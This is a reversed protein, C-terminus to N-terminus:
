HKAVSKHKRAKAHCDTPEARRRKTTHQCAQDILDARNIRERQSADGKQEQVDVTQSEIRVLIRASLDAAAQQKASAVPDACASVPRSPLWRRWFPLRLM